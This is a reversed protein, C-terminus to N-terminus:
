VVSMCVGLTIGLHWGIAYRVRDLHLRGTCPARGQRRSRAMYHLRSAREAHPQLIWGIHQNQIKGRRIIM